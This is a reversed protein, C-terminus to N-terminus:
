GGGRFGAGGFGGGGGGFFGGGGGGFGGTTSTSSTAAAVNVTPLVVVDGARLGSVVETSSSGVLGTQIRTPTSQGNSLVNVTSVTGTTTIAASPLELVRARTQTVVAVNATMGEKVGAPPNVLSITANYTVVNSVVTSTSSVATVRGAVEVNPLAPFTVTAPQGVTLKTADAE